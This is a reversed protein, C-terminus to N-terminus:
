FKFKLHKSRGLSEKLLYYWGQTVEQSTMISRVGFSTCGLLITREKNKMWVSILLRRNFDRRYTDFTFTEHMRVLENTIDYTSTKHRLRSESDPSLSMKIYVQNSPLDPLSRLALITVTIKNTSGCVVLKLQGRLKLGVKDNLSM